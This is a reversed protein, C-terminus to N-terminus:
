SVIAFVSFRFFIPNSLNELMEILTKKFREEDFVVSGFNLLNDIMKSLIIGNSITGELCQKSNQSLYKDKKISLAELRVKNLFDITEKYEQKRTEIERRQEQKRQSIVQTRKSINSQSIKSQSISCFKLLIHHIWLCISFISSLIMIIFVILAISGRENNLAINLIFLSFCIVFIVLSAILVFSFDQKKSKSSAVIVPPAIVPPKM